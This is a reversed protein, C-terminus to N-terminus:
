KSKPKSTKAQCKQVATRLLWMVVAVVPFYVLLLDEARGFWWVVLSRLSCNIECGLNLFFTKGFNIIAIFLNATYSLTATFNARNDKFPKLLTNTLSLISLIITMVSIRILPDIISTSCAVLMLRYFKHIGLWTFRVGFVTLIRFHRLLTHLIQKESEHPSDQDKLHKDNARSLRTMHYWTMVPVPFLCASIFQSVSMKRDQVYFPVHSLIFFTPIINLCIYVQILIQWWNYCQISGQLYLVKEEGVDVCQVLSFAGKVIKQYSFLIAMLIAQVLHGRLFGWFRGVTNGRHIRSFVSQVLYLILLFSLIYPGFLSQLLVKIM